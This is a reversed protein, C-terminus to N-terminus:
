TCRGEMYKFGIRSTGADIDTCRGELHEFGIRSTGADLDHVLGIDYCTEGDRIPGGCKACPVTKTEDM